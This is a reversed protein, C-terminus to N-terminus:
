NMLYAYTKTKISNKRFSIWSHTGRYPEVNISFSGEGTPRLVRKWDAPSESQWLPLLEMLTVRIQQQVIESLGSVTMGSDVIMEYIV